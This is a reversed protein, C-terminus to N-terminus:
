SCFLLLPSFFTFEKDNNLLGSIMIKFDAQKRVWNNSQLLGILWFLLDVNFFFLINALLLPHEYCFSWIKSGSISSYNHHHHHLFSLYFIISPLSTLIAVVINKINSHKEMTIKRDLLDKQKEKQPSYSTTRLESSHCNHNYLLSSIISLSPYHHSNRKNSSTIINYLIIITEKLKPGSFKRHGDSLFHTRHAFRGNFLM